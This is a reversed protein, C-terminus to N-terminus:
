SKEAPTVKKLRARVIRESLNKERSWIFTPQPGLHKLLLSNESILHWHEELSSKIVSADNCTVKYSLRFTGQIPESSKTSKWNTKRLTRLVKEIETQSYGRVRLREQFLTIYHHLDEDNSCNRRARILEGKILAKFVSARHASTRDLYQFKNTPKTFIKTDLIGIQRFREGKFITIDLFDVSDKSYNQEFKLSSHLKNAEVEMLKLNEVTDTWIFFIDDRYRQWFAINKGYKSLLETELNFMVIDAIEPSCKSGMSVGFNQRYYKGDFEFVNDKLILHLLDLVGRLTIMGNQAFKHWHTKLVERISSEAEEHSINTYMSSVDWTCLICNQSLPYNTIKEIIDATDKTFTNQERVIPLLFQDIIEAPRELPTGCLSVIPRGTTPPQKHIKPLFYIAAIKDNGNQFPDLYKYLSESLHGRGHLITLHINLHDMVENLPNESLLQYYQDNSLQRNAETTYQTRDMVTIMGGKDAKKIVISADNKLKELAAKEDASLNSHNQKRNLTRLKSIVSKRTRAIFKELDANLSPVSNPKPKTLRWLKTAITQQRESTSPNSKKCPRTSWWLAWRLKM